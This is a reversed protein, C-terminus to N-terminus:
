VGYTESRIFKSHRSKFHEWQDSVTKPIYKLTAENSSKIPTAERLKILYLDKQPAASVCVTVVVLAVLFQM